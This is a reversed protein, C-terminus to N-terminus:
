NSLEPIAMLIRELSKIQRDKDKLKSEIVNIWADKGIIIEELNFIKDKQNCAIAYNNQLDSYEKETLIYKM